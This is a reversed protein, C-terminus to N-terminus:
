QSAASRDTNGIGRLWSYALRPSGDGELLAYWRMAQRSDYWPVTSFDLNFLFLGQLWPWQRASLLCLEQYYLAQERETVVYSDHEGMSWASALPWGTETAWIPTDGDGFELMVQRQQALRAVSLGYQQEQFPPLGYGYPHSGLADFYGKAGARYMGRLFELDGMAGEGGDGTTAVGGSVVIADPDVTKITVYAVRLMAAYRAPDPQEMGWEFVLNPENGIEYADVQGRYRWALAMLFRSYAALDSPPHTSTSGEPRAWEPTEHVRLLVRLGARRAARTINDVDEWYYQGPEKEIGAWSVYNKLWGFGLGHLLYVNGLDATNAGLVAPLEKVPSPRHPDPLVIPTLGAADRATACDIWGAGTVLPSVTGDTALRYIAHGGDSAMTFLIDEGAWILSSIAATAEWLWRAEGGDRSVVYIGPRDDQHWGAFAIQSGDPSWAPYRGKLPWATMQREEGGLDLVYVNEVGDRVGSYAIAGGDPSWAPSRYVEGYGSYTLRRTVGHMLDLTYVDRGGDRESVFVLHTADPSWDPEYDAAANETVNVSWDGKLPAVFIESNGDRRSVFA